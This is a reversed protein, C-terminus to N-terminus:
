RVALFYPRILRGIRRCPLDRVDRERLGAEEEGKTVENVKCAAVGRGTTNPRM